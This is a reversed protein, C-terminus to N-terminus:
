LPVILNIARLIIILGCALVLPAIAINLARMWAQSRPGGVSRVLEKEILLVMLLVIAILGLSDSLSGDANLLITTQTIQTVTSTM